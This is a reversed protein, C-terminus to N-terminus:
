RVGDGGGDGVGLQGTAEVAVILKGEMARDADKM